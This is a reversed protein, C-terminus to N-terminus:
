KIETELYVSTGKGPSSKIDLKFGIGAAREQVNRLGMGFSNKQLVPDIGIGDDEVTIDAGGDEHFNMQVVAQTAQAHKLINHVLEQIIRYLPLYFVHSLNEENGLVQFRIVTNTKASMRECFSQIAKTFGEQLLAEPLINQATERLGKSTEELLMLGEAFDPNAAYNGNKRALEFNMKAASLLGGIGDHLERAIRIREKEEGNITAELREIKLKQQLNSIRGEQLKQLQLNKRRWVIFIIASFLALLAIIGILYNKNRVNSQVKTIMLNREAIEKDKESLRYRIELRNIMDIKELQVLSDNLGTYREKEVLANKYDGLAAYSLSRVQYAEVMENRLHTGTSKFDNLTKTLLNIAASYQQQQYLAKGKLLDSFLMYFSLYSSQQNQRGLEKVMEVYRLADAPKKEQLYTDAINVYTSIKRPLSLMKLATRKQLYNNYYFRASDYNKMWHFYAGQLFYVSSVALASDEMTTATNKAKNVYGNILRASEANENSSYEINIWFIALKTYVDIALSSNSINGTEIERGLLYYYYASSDKKGQEDFSEALILHVEAKDEVSADGDKEYFYLAQNAHQISKDSNNGFYWVAMKTHALAAGKYYGIATSQQLAMNFDALADEPRTNIITAGQAIRQLIALSDYSGSTAKEANDQTYASLTIFVALIWLLCVMFINRKQLRSKNFM